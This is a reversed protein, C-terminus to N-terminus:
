LQRELHKCLNELISKEKTNIDFKMIRKKQM